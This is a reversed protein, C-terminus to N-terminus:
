REIHDIQLSIPYAGGLKVADVVRAVTGYSITGPAKVFVTREAKDPFPRGNDLADNARISGSAIREAFVQKLRAVLPETDNATAISPELNLAISEDSAVSVILTNPNPTVIDTKNPESPVQSRFVTPKLPTIVMFIILLVLLVDILPTVNIEPKSM